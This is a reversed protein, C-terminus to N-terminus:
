SDYNHFNRGYSLQNSVTAAVKDWDTVFNSVGEGILKGAARCMYM